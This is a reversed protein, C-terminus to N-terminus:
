NHQVQDKEREFSQDSPLTVQNHFRNDDITNMLENHILPM